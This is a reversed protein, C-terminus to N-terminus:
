FFGKINNDVYVGPNVISYRVGAQAALNCVVDFQHSSFFEKLGKENTLDINTFWFTSYKNSQSEKGSREADDRKIGLEHLRGKKLNVDYYDNM